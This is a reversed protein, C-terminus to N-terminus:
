GNKWSLQTFPLLRGIRDPENSEGGKLILKYLSYKSIGTQFDKHLGDRKIGDEQFDFVAKTHKRLVTDLALLYAWSRRYFDLHKLLCVIGIRYYKWMETM